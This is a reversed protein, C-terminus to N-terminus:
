DPELNLAGSVHMALYLTVRRHSYVDAREDSCGHQM